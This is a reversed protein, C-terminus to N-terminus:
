TNGGQGTNGKREEGLFTDGPRKMADALSAIDNVVADPSRPPVSRAPPPPTKQLVARNLAFVADAYVAAICQHRKGYAAAYHFRGLEKLETELSLKQTNAILM